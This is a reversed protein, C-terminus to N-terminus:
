LTENIVASNATLTNRKILSECGFGPSQYDRPQLWLVSNAPRDSGRGLWRAQAAPRRAFASLPACSAHCAGQARCRFWCGVPWRRSRRRGIRLRHPGRKWHRPCCGATLRCGSVSRGWYGGASPWPSSRRIVRFALLNTGLGNARAISSSAACLM